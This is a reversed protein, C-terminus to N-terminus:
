KVECTQLQNEFQELFKEFSLSWEPRGVNPVYYIDYREKMDKRFSRKSSYVGEIIPEYADLLIFVKKM